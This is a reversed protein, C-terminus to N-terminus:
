VKYETEPNIVCEFREQWSFLGADSGRSCYIFRLISVLLVSLAKLTKKKNPDDTRLILKGKREEINVIIREWCVEGTVRLLGFCVVYCICLRWVINCVSLHCVSERVNEHSLPSWLTERNRKIWCSFSFQFVTPSSVIVTFDTFPVIMQSTVIYLGMHKWLHVSPICGEM